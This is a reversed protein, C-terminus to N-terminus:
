GLGHEVDGIQDIVDGALRNEAICGQLNEGVLTDTQDSLVAASFGRQKAQNAGLDLRVATIDRQLGALGDAKDRLFDIGGLAGGHFKHQIAVGLQTFQFVCERLFIVVGNPKFRLVTILGDVAIACFCTGRLQEVTQTKVGVFQFTM